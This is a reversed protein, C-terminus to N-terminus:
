VEEYNRRYRRRGNHSELLFMTTLNGDKAYQVSVVEMHGENHLNKIKLSMKEKVSVAPSKVLQELQDYM